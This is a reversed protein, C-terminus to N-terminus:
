SILLKKTDPLVIKSTAKTYQAKVAEDTPAVIAVSNTNLRMKSAPDVTFMTNMLGVGNPGPAVSVPNAIEIEGSDTYVNSVKAVIEEGSNVKFSYVENLKLNTLDM